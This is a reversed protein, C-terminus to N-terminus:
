SDSGSTVTEGDLIIMDWPLLDEDDIVVGSDVDAAKNKAQLAGGAAGKLVHGKAMPGRHESPKGDERIRLCAQNHLVMGYTTLLVGGATSSPSAM